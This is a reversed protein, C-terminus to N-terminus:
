LSSCIGWCDGYVLKTCYLNIKSHIWFYCKKKERTLMIQKVKQCINVFTERPVTPSTVACGVEAARQICLSARTRTAQSGWFSFHCFLLYRGRLPVCDTEPMPFFSILSFFPVPKVKDTFLSEAMSLKSLFGKPLSPFFFFFFFFNISTYHLEAPSVHKENARFLGWPAM